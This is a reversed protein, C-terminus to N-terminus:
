STFTMQLLHFYVLLFHNITFHLARFHALVFLAGKLPDSQRIGMTSPIITVDSERNHRSYFMHSEFAYFVHVFPIFQIIDGSTVHLKQFVVRKFVLNFAKAVDLQLVVWDLHLDLTCRIDHIIAECGVKTAIRFQHPSFHTAFTEHFQFCLIHSTLQYLTEGVIIPCIESSPKTM